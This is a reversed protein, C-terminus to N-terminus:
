LRCRRGRVTAFAAVEGWITPVAFASFAPDDLPGLPVALAALVGTM